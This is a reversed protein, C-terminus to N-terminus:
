DQLDQARLRPCIPLTQRREAKRLAANEAQEEGRLAWRDPCDDGVVRDRVKWSPQRRWMRREQFSQDEV